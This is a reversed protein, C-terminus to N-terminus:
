AVAISHLAARRSQPRQGARRHKRSHFNLVGGSEELGYIAAIKPHNLSALLQAEREFRAMRAPDEAFTPPLVKLAADRNLRTDRARYMEGMGGAGLPSVIEYPGVHTGSVVTM